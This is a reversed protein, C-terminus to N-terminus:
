KIRGIVIPNEDVCQAMIADVNTEDAIIIMGIGLNFAARMEEDSISGEKQIIQFIPPIRWSNWDIELEMGKPVVRKTNGVIGGGTIHSLASIQQKVLLPKIPELYSRHISLLASGISTGLEDFHQLVDYKPFLVNRALSYGNTHLGTSALGILVNGSSIRDPGLINKKEVVGVITGAVDYEGAAYMSPMEATEGGILACNNKRCATVLGSIVQEAVGVNLSGTAFYDLFYQPEAGCALIDNVCHNVLDQGITSHIDMAFAVKLKTGVGDASSVLIPHEYEPFRADFMAGFFGIDKLVKPTFTSKVMPKINSVLQEGAEIDVGSSKYTNM